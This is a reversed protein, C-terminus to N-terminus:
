LNFQRTHTVGSARLVFTLSLSLQGAAAQSVDPVLGTVEARTEYQNLIRITQGIYRPVQAMPQDLLEWLPSGFAPDHIREGPRTSLIIHYCQLVDELIDPLRAGGPPANRLQLGYTM